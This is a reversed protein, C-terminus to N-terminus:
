IHSYLSKRNNPKEKKLYVVLSKGLVPNMLRDLWRTLRPRQMMDWVLLDHYKDVLRSDERSPGVLCKLWWFPTHLSHAYHMKWTKVGASELLDILEKKKYIRVHGDGSTRYEESLTWCIREPFYRPVSVVLTKSPKLVRVAETVANNHDNIHEMVESCIVLDFCNNKFPLKFMDAVTMAGVGGDYDQLRKQEKLKHKAEFVDDANIDVGIAVANKLRFAACTHRGTGCGIDLIRDGPKMALRNFDITIM